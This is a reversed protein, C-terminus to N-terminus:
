ARGYDVLLSKALAFAERLYCHVDLWLPLPAAVGVPDFRGDAGALLKSRYLHFPNTVIATPTHDLTYGAEELLAASYRVNEGTSTSRDELLLRDEPIGLSLLERRMAEAESIDEGWGQGGSLVAPVGPHAALYEAARRVRLRTSLNLEEGDVGGGLVIVIEM